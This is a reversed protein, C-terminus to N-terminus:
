EQLESTAMLYEEEVIDLPKNHLIKHYLNCEILWRTVFDQVSTAVYSGDDIIVEGDEDIFWQVAGQQDTYFCDFDEDLSFHCSTPSNMMCELEILVSTLQLLEHKTKVGGLSRLPKTSEIFGKWSPINSSSVYECISYYGRRGPMFPILMGCWVDPEEQVINMTKKEICMSAVNVVQM